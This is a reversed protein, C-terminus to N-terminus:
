DHRIPKDLEEDEMSWWEALVSIGLLQVERASLNVGRGSAHADRLRRRMRNFEAPLEDQRTNSTNM